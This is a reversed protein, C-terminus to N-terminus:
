IVAFEPEITEIMDTEATCRAEWEYRVWNLRGGIYSCIFKGIDDSIRYVLIFLIAAIGITYYKKTTSISQM